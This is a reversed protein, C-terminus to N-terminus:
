EVTIVDEEPNCLALKRDSERLSKTIHEFLIKGFCSPVANGIQKIINTKTGAFQHTPLFAQLAALECLEFTRKGSPHLNSEGGDCTICRRLPANDDYRPKNMQSSEHMAVPMSAKHPQLARLVKRVTTPENKGPGLGNTAEPFTPLTEGPCAAIVILRKRPQANEYDALNCVRWRVSYGLAPLPNILSRFFDGNNKTIIHSTQEFTVIRPKCRSLLPLTSFMTAINAPNNGGDRDHRNLGSHPQCPYSIHLVDIQEWSWHHSSACFDHLDKLLVKSRPFNLRLTECAVDWNDLLFQVKLGAQRAGSAMGGAGACIDAYTYVKMRPTPRQRTKLTHGSFRAHSTDSIVKSAALSDKISRQTRAELTTKTTTKTTTKSEIISGASFSLRNITKRVKSCIVEVCDDSDETLDVVDKKSTMDHHTRKLSQLPSSAMTNQFDEEDARIHEDHTKIERVRDKGLFNRLRQANPMCKGRDCEEESVTVISGGIIAKKSPDLEDVYKLRCVLQAEDKQEESSMYARADWRFSFHPFDQNTIIIERTCLVDELAKTVLCDHLQPNQNLSTTKLVYHLENRKKDLLGGLKTNRRMLNGKVYINRTTLNLYIVVVHLFDGDELEVRSGCRLPGAKSRVPQIAICGPPVRSNTQLDGISAERLFEPEDDENNDNDIIGGEDDILRVATSRQPVPPRYRPRENVSFSSRMQTSNTFSPKRHAM